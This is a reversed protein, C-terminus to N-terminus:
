PAWRTSHVGGHRFMVSRERCTHLSKQPFLELPVGAGEKNTGPALWPMEDWSCAPRTHGGFPRGEWHAQPFSQPAGLAINWEGVSHACTLFALLSGQSSAVAWAQLAAAAPPWVLETPAEREREKRQLPPHSPVQVQREENDCHSIRLSWNPNPFLDGEPRKKKKFILKISTYNLHLFLGGKKLTCHIFQSWYVCWLTIVM